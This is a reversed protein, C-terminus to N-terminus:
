DIEMRLLVHDPIEGVGDWPKDDDEVEANVDEGRQTRLVEDLGWLSKENQQFPQAMTRLFRRSQTLAM